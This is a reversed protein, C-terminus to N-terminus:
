GRPARAKAYRLARLDAVGVRERAERQPASGEHRFTRPLLEDRPRFRDDMSPAIQDALRQLQVEVESGSYGFIWARLTAALDVPLRRNSDLFGNLLTVIAADLDGAGIEAHLWARASRGTFPKAADALAWAFSTQEARNM